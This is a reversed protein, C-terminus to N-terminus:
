IQKQKNQIMYVNVYVNLVIYNTAINNQTGGTFIRNYPVNYVFYYIATSQKIKVKRIVSM